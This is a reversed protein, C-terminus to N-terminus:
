SEAEKSRGPGRCLGMARRGSGDARDRDSCPVTARARYPKMPVRVLLIFIIKAASSFRNGHGGIKLAVEKGSFGSVRLLPLFLPVSRTYHIPRGAPWSGTSTPPPWGALPGSRDLILKAETRNVAGARRLESGRVLRRSWYAVPSLSDILGKPALSCSQPESVDIM